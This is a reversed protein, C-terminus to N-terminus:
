EHMFFDIAQQTKPFLLKKSYHWIIGIMPIILFLQLSVLLLAILYCSWGKGFLFFAFMGLGLLWATVSLILISVAAIGIWVGALMAVKFEVAGLASFHQAMRFLQQRLSKLSNPQCDDM